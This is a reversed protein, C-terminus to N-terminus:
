LNSGAGIVNINEGKRHHYTICEIMDGVSQPSYAIEALGGIKLTTFQKLDYNAIGDFLLAVM